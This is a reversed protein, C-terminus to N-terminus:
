TSRIYRSQHFDVNQQLINLDHIPIHFFSLAYLSDGNPLLENSSDALLQTYEPVHYVVLEPIFIDADKRKRVWLSEELACSSGSSLAVELRFLSEKPDSTQDPANLILPTLNNAHM